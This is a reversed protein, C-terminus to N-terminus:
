EKLTWENNDNVEYVEGNAGMWQSEYRCYHFDEFNGIRWEIPQNDLYGIATNGDDLIKTLDCGNITSLTSHAPGDTLIILDSADKTSFLITKEGEYYIAIAENPRYFSLDNEDHCEPDLDWNKIVEQLTLGQEVIEKASKM